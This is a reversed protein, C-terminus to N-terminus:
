DNSKNVLDHIVLDLKNVLEIVLSVPIDAYGAARVVNIERRFVQSIERLKRTPDNEIKLKAL